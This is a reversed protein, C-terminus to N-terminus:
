QKRSEDIKKSAWAVGAAMGIALWAQEESDHMPVEVGPKDSDYWAVLGRLFAADKPALSQIITELRGMLKVGM